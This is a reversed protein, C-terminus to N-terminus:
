ENERNDHQYNIENGAPAANLALHSRSSDNSNDEDRDAQNREGIASEAEFLVFFIDVNSRDLDAVGFLV